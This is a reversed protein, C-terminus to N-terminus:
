ESEGEELEKKLEDLIIQKEESTLNSYSDVVEEIDEGRKVRIKCANYIIKMQLPSM